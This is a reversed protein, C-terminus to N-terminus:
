LWMTILSVLKEVAEAKSLRYRIMAGSLADAAGIIAICRQQVEEEQLDSLPALAAAYLAVHGDVMERQYAEMEPAGKLAGSIAHFESGVAEHCNMYAEALLQAIQQLDTPAQRIAEETARVQRENIERYLAVMLGSRSEFHDYAIPKSVGARAALAGLTLADTGSERVMDRATELLQVYREAKSLKKSM